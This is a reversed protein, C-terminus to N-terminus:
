LNNEGPFELVKGLTKPAPPPDDPSSVVWFESNLDQAMKLVAQKSRKKAVSRLWLAAMRREMSDTRTIAEDIHQLAKDFECRCLAGLAKQMFAHAQLHRMKPPHPPESHFTRDM